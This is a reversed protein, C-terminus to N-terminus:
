CLDVDRTSRRREKDDKFERSLFQHNPFFSSRNSHIRHRLAHDAVHYGLKPVDLSCNNNKEPEIRQQDRKEFETEDFEPNDPTFGEVVPSSTREEM